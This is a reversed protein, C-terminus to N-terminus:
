VNRLYFDIEHSPLSIGSKLVCDFGESLGLGFGLSKMLFLSPCALFMYIVKWVELNPSSSLLFGWFSHHQFGIEM